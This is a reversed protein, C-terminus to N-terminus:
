RDSTAADPEGVDVFAGGSRLALDALFTQDADLGIPVVHIPAERHNAEMAREIIERHDTVGVTPLGDTIFVVMPLRPSQAANLQRFAEQLAADINTGGITDVASVRTQDAQVHTADGAVLAPAFPTAENSFTVISYRDAPHLGELAAALTQRGEEMKLGAMSGSQDLVFVVDRSLATGEACLQAWYETVGQTPDKAAVLVSRSAGEEEWVVILDKIASPNSTLISGQGGTMPIALSPTRLGEIGLRSAVTLNVRLQDPAPDLGSLPLRYVRHAAALPVPEVYSAQLIRDEGPAVNISIRVLHRDAQRLLAADLGQETANVYERIAQGIEAVRGELLHGQWSLNFSVLSAGDPLPLSIEAQTAAPGANSLGFRLSTEALADQIHITAAFSEFQVNGQVYSVDPTPVVVLCEEPTCGAVHHAQAPVALLATLLLVIAPAARVM